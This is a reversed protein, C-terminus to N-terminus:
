FLIMPALTSSLIIWLCFSLPSLLCLTPLVVHTYISVVLFSSWPQTPLLPWLGAALIVSSQPPVALRSYSHPTNTLLTQPSSNGLQLAKPLSLSFTQFYSYPTFLVIREGGSGWPGWRSLAASSATDEPSLNQRSHLLSSFTSLFLDWLACPLSQPSPHPTLPGPSRLKKIAM